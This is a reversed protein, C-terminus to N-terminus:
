FPKGHTQKMLLRLLSPSYQLTNVAVESLVPSGFFHQVTRGITLRSAFQRRWARTYNEELAQRNQGNRFYLQVQEAAIKGAHIAIAMGNGCLPTIMGAADGCMLIHQEVCTKTAFSVENIVEPQEYLFEAEEFLQRLHPNQYLIAQEMAPVSGHKKLNQRTTLYCLCHKGDEIASVGAYGNKFNHLAIVDNPTQHRIHYKVGVFPSRNKFFRRNLQRDINTRKGYAGLVVKAQINDAGKLHIDFSNNEYLVQQVKTELMFKVGREEALKYLYNDLTYRSLGFGGLDLHSTLTKGSPSSLELKTIQAPKLLLPDAQLRQLFPLVENSVYEGCVKHFPYSKQEILTVSFGETALSLAATLGALGGGVVAIDEM